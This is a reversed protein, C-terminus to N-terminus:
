CLQFDPMLIIENLLLRLSAIIKVKNASINASWESQSQGNLMVALLRAIRTSDLEKALIHACIGTLLDAPKTPDIVTTLLSEINADSASAIIQKAYDVRAPYTKTSLWTRYGPWSAVNPPDYIEQELDNIAVRSAGSSKADWDSGLARQLGVIFETPTKIQSGIITDDYFYSSTFLSYYLAKLSFSSTEFADALEQVITYDVDGPSSYVYFKYFKEAVFRSIQKAKEEFMINILGKVEQEKVQFETNDDATRAPITRKGYITKEGTDHDNPSFYPEFAGNPAPDGFYAAARWGTLVKAGQRIDGETYNNVGMTFLEQLERMYNENPRGKSSYYMSQYLNMAGDLTVDTALEKYSGLYNKRLTQNHKYLLPPPMLAQTDYTFEICWISSLFATAKESVIMSEAKMLSIIWDVLEAFRSRLRGEIEFRIDNIQDLPNFEQKTIWSAMSATPSAVPTDKFLLDLAEKPTLGSVAKIQAQTPSFSLRRLLHYAHKASLKGSYGGLTLPLPETKESKTFDNLLLDRRKM